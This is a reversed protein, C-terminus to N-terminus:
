ILVEKDRVVKEKEKIKSELDERSGAENEVSFSM